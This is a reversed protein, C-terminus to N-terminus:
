WGGADLIGTLSEASPSMPWRLAVRPGQRMSVAGIAAEDM